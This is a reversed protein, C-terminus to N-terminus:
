AAVENLKGSTVDIPAFAKWYQTAAVENLKGSTVDIPAFAKWAQRIRALMVSPADETVSMSVCANSWSKASKTKLIEDVVGGVSVAVFANVNDANARIWTGDADREAYRLAVFQAANASQM